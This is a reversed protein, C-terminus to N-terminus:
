LYDGCYQIYYQEKYIIVKNLNRLILCQQALQFCTIFIMMMMIIMMMMVIMMMMMM